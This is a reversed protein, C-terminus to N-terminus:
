KESTLNFAIKKACVYCGFDDPYDEPAFAFISHGQEVQFKKNLIKAKEGELISLVPRSTDTKWEIPLSVFFIDEFVIEIDHMNSIDISGIITLKQKDYQLVEFDLWLQSGIFTNIDEVVKKTELIEM